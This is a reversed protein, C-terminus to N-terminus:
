IKSIDKIIKDIGKLSPKFEKCERFFHLREEVSSFYEMVFKGEKTKELYWSEVKNSYNKKMRKM